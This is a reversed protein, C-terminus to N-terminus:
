HPYKRFVLTQYHHIILHSRTFRGKKELPKGSRGVERDPFAWMTALAREVSEKVSMSGLVVVFGFAAAACLPM